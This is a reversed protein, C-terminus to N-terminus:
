AAWTAPAGEDPNPISAATAPAAPHRLATIPVVGPETAPAWVVRWTDDWECACRHDAHPHHLFVGWTQVARPIRPILESPDDGPYLHLNRWTHVHAM